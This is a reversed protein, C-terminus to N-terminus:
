TKDKKSFMQAIISVKKFIFTYIYIYIIDRYDDKSIVYIILLSKMSHGDGSARKNQSGHGPLRSGTDPDYCPSPPTHSGSM